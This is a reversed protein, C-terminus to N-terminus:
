GKNAGFGHGIELNQSPFIIFFFIQAGCLLLHSPSSSAPVINKSEQQSKQPRSQFFRSWEAIM